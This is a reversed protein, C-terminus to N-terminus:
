GGFIHNLEAQIYALREDKFFGAETDYAGNGLDYIMQGDFEVGSDMADQVLKVLMPSEKYGEPRADDVQNMECCMFHAIDKATFTM